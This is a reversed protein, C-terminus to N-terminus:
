PSPTGSTPNALYGILYYARNILRNHARLYRLVTLADTPATSNGNTLLVLFLKNSGGAPVTYSRSDSSGVPTQYISLPLSDLITPSTASSTSTAGNTASM